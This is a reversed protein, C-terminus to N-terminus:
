VAGMIASAAAPTDEAPIDDNCVSHIFLHTPKRTLSGRTREEDRRIEVVASIWFEYVNRRRRAFTIRNSGMQDKALHFTLM